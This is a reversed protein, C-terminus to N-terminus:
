EAAQRVVPPLAQTAEHTAIATRVAGVLVAMRRAKSLPIRAPKGVQRAGDWCTTTITDDPAVEITLWRGAGLDQCLILTTPATHNSTPM